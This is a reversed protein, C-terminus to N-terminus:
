PASPPPEVPSIKRHSEGTVAGFGEITRKLIDKSIQDWVIERAQEETMGGPQSSVPYVITGVLNPEEWLVANVHKDVFILKVVVDLKYQTAILNSDYAVPIHIYRGIEGRVAGDAEELSVIKYTGDSLFRSNVKITLKDELGFQQTHNVIPEVAIKQIHQPMIQPAPNYIVDSQEQTTACAYFLSAAALVFIRNM